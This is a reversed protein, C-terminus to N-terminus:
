SLNGNSLQIFLNKWNVIKIKLEHGNGPIM